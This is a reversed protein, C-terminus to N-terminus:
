DSQGRARSLCRLVGGDGHHMGRSGLRHKLDHVQSGGRDSAELTSVPGLLGFLRKMTKWPSWCSAWVILSFPTTLNVVGSAMLMLFTLIQSSPLRRIEHTVRGVADQLSQTSIDVCTTRCPRYPLLHLTLCFSRRAHPVHKPCM